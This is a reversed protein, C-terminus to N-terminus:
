KMAGGPAAGGQAGEVAGPFLACLESMAANVAAADQGRVVVNSGHVGNSVFPYSGFSLEPHRAALAGLPGAIDGEGRLVPLTQSLLPAGGTLRPLLSALMAEFISPVGAMVHVNRLTFGPAISVPNEILGAGEPIRAMRLRAENLETGRQAYHDALLARADERVDIPVEFAAAVCDATIDDHTPGIGGSTFVHDHRGSLSRLAGTIAAADDAVVRAERLDIGHDTLARALYHLNSDRTRGSLIEDGIVLMAATPNPM